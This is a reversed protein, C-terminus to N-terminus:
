KSVGEEETKLRLCGIAEMMIRHATGCAIERGAISTRVFSRMQTLKGYSHERPFLVSRNPSYTIHLISKGHVLDHLLIVREKDLICEMKNFARKPIRSAVSQVRVAAIDFKMNREAELQM